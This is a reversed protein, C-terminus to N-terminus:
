NQDNMANQEITEIRNGENAQQQVAGMGQATQKEVNEQEKLEKMKQLKLDTIIKNAQDHDIGQQMLMQQVMQLDVQDAVMQRKKQSVLERSRRLFEHANNIGSFEIAAEVDLEPSQAALQLLTARDNPNMQDSEQIPELKTAYDGSEIADVFLEFDRDYTFEIWKARNDSLIRKAKPKKEMIETVVIPIVKNHVHTELAKNFNDFLIGNTGVGQQIRQRVQSAAAENGVMGMMAENVGLIKYVKQELEAIVRTIESFGEGITTVQQFVDNLRRGGKLDLDIIGGIQTWMARLDDLSYDSNRLTQGDVVLLGKAGHAMMIERFMVAKNLAILLDKIDDMIGSYWGDIFQAFFPTYPHSGHPLPNRKYEFLGYHSFVAKIWTQAQTEQLEYKQDVIEAIENRVEEQPRDFFAPDLEGEKMQDQMELLEIEALDQWIEEQTKGYKVLRLDDTEKERVQLRDETEKYWLEVFKVRHQEKDTDFKYFDRWSRDKIASYSDGKMRSYQGFREEIVDKHNPFMSILDHKYMRHVEGIYEVDQLTMDVSSRDWIMQRVSKRETLIQGDPNYRRSYFTKFFDAGTIVGNEFCESEVYKTKNKSRVFDYYGSIALALQDDAYMDFWRGAQEPTNFQEVNEEIFIERNRKHRDYSFEDQPVVSLKYRTQRQQNILRNIPARGEPIQYGSMDFQAFFDQDKETWLQNRYIKVAEEARSRDGEADTEAQNVILRLRGVLDKAQKDDLDTFNLFNLTSKSSIEM